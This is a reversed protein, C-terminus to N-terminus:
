REMFTLTIKEPLVDMQGFRQEMARLAFKNTKITDGDALLIIEATGKAIDFRIEGWTGEYDALYEYVAWKVKRGMKRQQKLRLEVAHLENECVLIRTLLDEAANYRKEPIVVWLEHRIASLAAEEEKKVRSETFHFHEGTENRTHERDDTFGYRYLLYQRERDGIGDLAEHLEAMTEKHIYAQEPTPLTHDFAVDHYTDDTEDDLPEDMSVVTHGDEITIRNTFLRIQSRIYQRMGNIVATGAYTMFTNGSAPDYKEVATYLALAGEQILDDLEVGWRYKGRVAEKAKATIFDYNNEIIWRKAEENGDRILSCLQENTLNKM